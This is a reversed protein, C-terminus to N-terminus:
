GAGGREPGAIEQRAGSQVIIECARDLLRRASTVSCSLNNLIFAFCLTRGDLTLAYGALSSIDHMTGTKARVRGQAPGDKMRKALTGDVGAIPLSDLFAEWVAGGLWRMYQLLAVAFCATMRNRRSLGSGDAFRVGTMPLGRRLWFRWVVDAGAGPNAGFAWGISWALRDALANHSRKNIRAVVEALTPSYHELLVVPEDWRPGAGGEVRIQAEELARALCQEAEKVDHGRGACLPGGVVLGRAAKIGRAALEHALSAYIDEAATPDASGTVILPGGIAGDEGVPGGAMVAARFRFDPGWMVLAAATIPLKQLSAPVLAQSPHRAYVVAGSEADVVLAGIRAGALKPHQWLAELRRGLEPAQVLTLAVVAAAAIM